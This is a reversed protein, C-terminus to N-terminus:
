HREQIPQQISNNFDMVAWFIIRLEPEEFLPSNRIEMWSSNLKEKASGGRPLGRQGPWFLGPM